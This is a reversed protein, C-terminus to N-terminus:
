FCRQGLFFEYLLIITEENKKPKQQVFDQIAAVKHGLVSSLTLCSTRILSIFDFKDGTQGCNKLVRKDKLENEILSKMSGVIKM